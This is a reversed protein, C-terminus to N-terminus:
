VTMEVVLPNSGHQEDKIPNQYEPRLGKSFKLEPTGLMVM